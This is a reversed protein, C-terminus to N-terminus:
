NEGRTLGRTHSSLNSSKLRNLSMSSKSNMLMKSSVGRVLELNKLGKFADIFNKNIDDDFLKYIHQLRTIFMDQNVHISAKSIIFSDQSGEIISLMFEIINKILGSKTYETMHKHHDYGEEEENLALSSAKFKKEKKGGKILDILM